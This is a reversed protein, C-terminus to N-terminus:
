EHGCYGARVLASVRLLVRGRAQKRAHPSPPQRCPAAAAPPSAAAAAAPADLTSCLEQIADATLHLGLSRVFQKLRKRTLLTAGARPRSRRCPVATHRVSPSYPTQRPRRPRQVEHLRYRWVFEKFSIQGDNNADVKAIIRQMDSM